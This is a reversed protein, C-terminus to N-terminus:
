HTDAPSELEVPHNQAHPYDLPPLPSEHDKAASKNNPQLTKQRPIPGVQDLAEKVMNEPYQRQLFRNRGPENGEERWGGKKQNNNKEQHM